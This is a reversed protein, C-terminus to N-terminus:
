KNNVKLADQILDAYKPLESLNYTIDTNSNIGLKVKLLELGCSVAMARQTEANASHYLSEAPKNTCNIKLIDSFSVSNNSGSM